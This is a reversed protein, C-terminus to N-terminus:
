ELVLASEATDAVMVPAGLAERVTSSQSSSDYEVWLCRDVMDHISEVHTILLIQQFVGKLNQLLSVVNERRSEDLSGFIEDLVLLGMSHGARETIMQSVALRLTLHLIDEEGGSIVPKYEGDDFLQPSFDEDLDVESYRGDTISAILSSATESLRPRIDSNLQRRLDDFQTTLFELHRHDSRKEELTKARARYREEDAVAAALVAEAAKVDGRVRAASERAEQRAAGAAAWRALLAAHDEASFALGNLERQRVQLLAAQSEVAAQLALIEQEAKARGTVLVELQRARERRPKLDTGRRRVENHEAEDYGGPVRALEEQLAAMRAQQAKLRERGKRLDDGASRSQFEKERLEPLAREAADIESSLKRLAEPEASLTKGTESAVVSQQNLTQMERAMQGTVKGFEDGLPRECTPCAGDPGAAELQELHAAVEALRARAARAAAEADSLQRTWDSRAKERAEKLERLRQEADTLSKRAEQLGAFLRELEAFPAQTEGIDSTLAEIQRRLGQRRTEVERLATLEENRSKLREYEAAEPRLADLEKEASEIAALGARSATLREQASALKARLVEAESRLAQHKRESQESATKLPEVEALAAEAATVDKEAAALRKRADALAAEAEHKRHRIEEPDGLGQSLLDMDRRVSLKEANALDRAKSLREYGLMRGVYEERARGSVDRLFALDKQGTFFSTFFAQPDMGLLQTVARTVNETGTHLQRGDLLLAADNLRRVARYRQGAVDFDLVCEPHATSGAGRPKITDAKGREMRQVAKQGYLCWALAELLTTKGAGNRGVIGTIGDQFLIETDRHQRFNAVRLSVLKM